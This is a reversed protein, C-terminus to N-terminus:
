FFEAALNQFVGRKKPFQGGFNKIIINFKSPRKAAYGVNSCNYLQWDSITNIEPRRKM